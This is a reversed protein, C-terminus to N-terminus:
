QGTLHSRVVVFSALAHRERVLLLPLQLVVGYLALLQLLQLRPARLSASPRPLLAAGYLLLLLPLAVVSPRLPQRQDRAGAQLAFLKSPEVVKM